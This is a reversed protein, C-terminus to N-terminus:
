VPPLQDLQSSPNETEELGKVNMAELSLMNRKGLTAGGQTDGTKHHAATDMALCRLCRMDTETLQWSGCLRNRYEEQCGRDDQGGHRGLISGVGGM